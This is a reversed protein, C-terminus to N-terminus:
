RLIRFYSTRNQDEAKYDVTPLVVAGARDAAASTIMSMGDRAIEQKTGFELFFLAATSLVAVLVAIAFPVFHGRTTKGRIQM